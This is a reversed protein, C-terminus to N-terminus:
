YDQELLVWQKTQLNKSLNVFELPQCIRNDHSKQTNCLNEIKRSQILEKVRNKGHRYKRLRHMFIDSIYQPPSNAFEFYLDLTRKQLKSIYAM